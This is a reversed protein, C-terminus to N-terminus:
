RNWPLRSLLFSLYSHGAIGSIILLIAIAGPLILVWESFMIGLLIALLIIIGSLLYTQREIKASTNSDIVTSLGERKWSNLGGKLCLIENAGVIGGWKGAAIHSRRGMQCYFVLRKGAPDPLQKPEFQSLPFLQARSIHEEHYELPERVDIAILEGSELGKKLTSPDIEKIVVDM